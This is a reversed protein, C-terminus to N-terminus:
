FSPRGVPRIRSPATLWMLLICILMSGILLLYTAHYTGTKDHLTGALWPSIAGGMSTGM